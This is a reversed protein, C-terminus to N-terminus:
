AQFTEILQASMSDLLESIRQVELVSLVEAKQLATPLFDFLPPLALRSEYSRWRREVFQEIAEAELNRLVRELPVSGSYSVRWGDVEPTVGTAEKLFDSLIWNAVSGGFTYLVWRDNERAALWRKNQLREGLYRRWKYLGQYTREDYLIPLKKLAEDPMTLIARISEAVAQPIPEPPAFYKALEAHEHQLDTVWIAKDEVRTILRPKGALVIIMGSSLRRTYQLPIKALPIAKEKEEVVMTSEQGGMTSWFLGKAQWIHFLERPLWLDRRRERELVGAETLAELIDQLAQETCFPLTNQVTTPLADPAVRGYRACLALLQQQLVSYYHAEGRTEMQDQLACSTLAVFRLLDGEPDAPAGSPHWQPCAAYVVCNDTSRNGRGLRQLFSTVSYPAGWLAVADIDGIDIGLELTSTAVCVAKPAQRFAKEVWARYDRHLSSYHLWVPISLREGLQWCLWDCTARTNAFLLVKRHRALISAMWGAVADGFRDPSSSGVFSLYVQMSRQGPVTVVQMPEDSGQLFRAVREPDAVTASLGIRQLPHQTYHKLRELLCVLQVGRRTGFFQHVEDVVVARVTRLPERAYDPMTTLMVELSEPTTLIFAPPPNSKITNREGHRIALRLDCRELREKLREELDNALARTPVLYLVQTQGRFEIAREALPAVVAETKGSGTPAVLLLNKGELVLPIAAKQTPLLDSRGGFFADYVRPLLRRGQHM